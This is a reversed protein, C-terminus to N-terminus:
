PKVSCEYMRTLREIDGHSMEKAFGIVDDYSSDCPLISSEYAKAFAYRPYHMVSLYDYPTGFDDFNNFDIKDFYSIWTEYELNEPFVEVFDDRDQRNHIHTFGLAHIVEHTVEPETVCRGRKVSIGQRGGVKGLKSFCGGGSFFEIFDEEYFRPVFRICSVSEISEMASQIIQVESETYEADERITFPIIVMGNQNKPWRLVVNRVGTRMMRHNSLLNKQEDTLLIDGQFFEQSFNSVTLSRKDIRNQHLCRNFGDSCIFQVAIIILSIFMKLQFDNQAESCKIYASASVIIFPDYTVTIFVFKTQYCCINEEVSTFIKRNLFVRRKKFSTM